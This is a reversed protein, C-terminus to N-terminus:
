SLPAASGEEQAGQPMGCYYTDRALYDFKDVDVNNRKNAVIEYLFGRELQSDADVKRGTILDNVFHIDQADYDSCRTLRAARAALSSRM